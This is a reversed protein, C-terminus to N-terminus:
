FCLSKIQSAFNLLVTSCTTNSPPCISVAAASNPILNAINCLYNSNTATAADFGKAEKILQDRTRYHLIDDFNNADNSFSMSRQVYVGTNIQNVGAASYLANTIEDTGVTNISVVRNTGSAGGSHTYAGHGNKGHSILAYVANNTIPNGQGTYSVISLSTTSYPNYAGGCATTFNGSPIYYLPNAITGGYNYNPLYQINSAACREIVVYTFRRGWADYAYSDNIQLTKTPVTGLDLTTAHVSDRYWNPQTGSCSDNNGSNTARGFGNTNPAQSSDAPCPLGGYEAIYNAIAKEVFEMKDSSDKIRDAETKNTAISLMSGMIVGIIMLVVSLEVLTFASINKHYSQKIM